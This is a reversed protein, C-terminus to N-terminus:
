SKIEVLLWVLSFKLLFYQPLVRAGIYFPLLGYEVDSLEHLINGPGPREHLFWSMIKKDKDFRFIVWWRGPVQVAVLINRCRWMKFIYNMGDPLCFPEGPKLMFLYYWLSNDFHDKIEAITRRYRTIHAIGLIM